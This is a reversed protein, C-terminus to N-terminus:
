TQEVLGEAVYLLVEGRDGLKEDFVNQETREEEM